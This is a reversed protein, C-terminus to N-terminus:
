SLITVWARIATNLHALYPKLMTSASDTRQNFIEALAAMMDVYEAPRIQRRADELIAIFEDNVMHCINEQWINRQFNGEKMHRIM